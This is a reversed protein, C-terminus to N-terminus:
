HSPISIRYTFLSPLSKTLKNGTWNWASGKLFNVFFDILVVMLRQLCPDLKALASVVSTSSNSLRELNLDLIKRLHSLDGDYDTTEIGKLIQDM